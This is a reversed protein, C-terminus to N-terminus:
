YRYMFRRTIKELSNEIVKKNKGRRRGAMNREFKIIRSKM